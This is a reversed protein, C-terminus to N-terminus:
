FLDVISALWVEFVTCNDRLYNDDSDVFTDCVAGM